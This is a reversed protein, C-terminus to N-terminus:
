MRAATTHNHAVNASPALSPSMNKAADLENNLRQGELKGFSIIADRIEPADKAKELYAMFTQPDRLAHAPDVRKGTAKNLLGEEPFFGSEKLIKEQRQTILYDIKAHRNPDRSDVNPTWPSSFDKGTVEETLSKDVDVGMKRAAMRLGDTAAIGGFFSLPNVEEIASMAAEAMRGNMAAKVTPVFPIGIEAAQAFEGSLLFPVAAAAGIIANGRKGVNGVVKLAKHINPDFDKIASIHKQSVPKGKSHTDPHADSTDLLPRYHGERAQQRLSVFYGHVSGGPTNIKGAIADNIKQISQPSHPDHIVGGVARAVELNKLEELRKPDLKLPDVGNMVQVTLEKRIENIRANTFLQVKGQPTMHIKDAGFKEYAPSPMSKGGSFKEILDAYLDVGPHNPINAM